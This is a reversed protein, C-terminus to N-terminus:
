RPPKSKEVKPIEQLVQRADPRWEPVKNLMRFLLTVWQVDLSEPYETTNGGAEKTKTLVKCRESETAFPILMEVLIVGLSYIDVKSDPYTSVGNKLEPAMYLSTGYLHSTEHKQNTQAGNPQCLLTALGFDGIKICNDESLYINTPKLDRHVLQKSHIYALGTCVQRFLKTAVEPERFQNSDLWNKLTGKPCLEMSIYLFEKPEENKKLSSESSVGTKSTASTVYSSYTNTWGPDTVSSGIKKALLGDTKGQWGAPPAEIWTKYYRVIHQHNLKAHSKVEFMVKERPKEASELPIRKVAYNIDVLKDRAEFVIGFGGRGLRKLPEYDSLFRSPFAEEQSALELDRNEEAKMKGAKVKKQRYRMVTDKNQILV